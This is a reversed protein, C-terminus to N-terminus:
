IGFVLMAADRSHENTARNWGTLRDFAVRTLKTRNNKPPIPLYSIGEDSLFDEWIQSDRKISGAGQLREVSATGFWQRKRADEFRVQIDHGRAVLTRVYDMAKHIPMSKIEIFKREPSNWLAVGTHVGVDIGVYYHHTNIIRKPM